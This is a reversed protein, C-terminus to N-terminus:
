SAVSERVRERERVSEKKSVVIGFCVPVVAAGYVENDGELVKWLCLVGKVIGGEGDAGGSLSRM